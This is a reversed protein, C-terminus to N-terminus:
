PSLGLFTAIDDDASSNERCFAERGSASDFARLVWLAILRQYPSRFLLRSM